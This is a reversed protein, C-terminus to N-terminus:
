KKPLYQKSLEIVDKGYDKEGKNYNLLIKVWDEEFGYEWQNNSKNKVEKRMKAKYAKISYDIENLSEPTQKDNSIAYDAIKETCAFYFIQQLMGYSSFIRTQAYKKADSFEDTKLWKKLSDTAYDIAEDRSKKLIKLGYKYIGNLKKSPKGKEYGVFYPDLWNSNEDQKPKRIYQVINEVLYDCIKMPNTVYSIPKVNKHKGPMAVTGMNTKTVTYYPYTDLFEKKRNENNQLNIDIRPEYRFTNRFSTEKDMQGKIFQPPVGIKGGDYICLSDVNLSDGFVDIAKNHKIGLKPPNIVKIKLSVSDNNKKAKLKVIYTSDKNWYRGVLRILGKKLNGKNTNGDWVPKETEWYVGMRKGCTDCNIIDVPNKGWVSDSKIWSWGNGGSAPFQPNVGYDAKIEEIKIEKVTGNEVKKKVGYYKTEGLLIEHKKIIIEGFGILDERNSYTINLSNNTNSKGLSEHKGKEPEVPSVAPTKTEIIKDIVEKNKDQKTKISGAIIVGSNAKVKIIVKVSDEKINDAAIFSFNEYENYFADSTDDNVSSYLTGYRNGQYIEVDFLTGQDFPTVTGDEDREMLTIETRDGPSIESSNFSVAVPSSFANITDPHLYVEIEVDDFLLDTWDEFYFTGLYIEGDGTQYPQQGSNEPYMKMGSVIGNSSKLYLRVKDGTVKRGIRITDDMHSKLDTQLLSDDPIDTFLDDNSLNNAYTIVSYVNGSVPINIDGTPIFPNEVYPLDLVEQPPVRAYSNNIKLSMIWLFDPYLPYPTGPQHTPYFSVQNYDVTEEPYGMISSATLENYFKEGTSPKYIYFVFKHWQPFTGLILTDEGTFSPGELHGLSEEWLEYEGNLLNRLYLVVEGGYRLYIPQRIDISNNSSQLITKEANIGVKEKITVQSVSIDSIFFILLIATQVVRRM